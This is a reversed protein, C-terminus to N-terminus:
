LIHEAFLSLDKITRSFRLLLMDAGADDIIQMKEKITEPSGILGSKIIGNAMGLDGGTIENLKSKAEEDSKGIIVHSSAGYKITRGELSSAFSDIKSEISDLPTPYFLWGDALSAAVERSSASEGGFWIEPIPNPKPELIGQDISFYIGKYDTVSNTWFSKIIEIQERARAIREDHEHWEFGYAEFERRDWGAGLSLIFRGGSIEQLTSSMKALLAPNRFGQCLTAHSLKVKKTLAALASAVTWAEYCSADAGKLPNLLHDAIWISHFGYEDALLASERLYDFTLTPEENPAGKLWGGYMPLYIGLKM